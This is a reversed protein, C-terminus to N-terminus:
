LQEHSVLWGFLVLATSETSHVHRNYVLYITTGTFLFFDIIQISHESLPSCGIYLISPVIKAAMAPSVYVEPGICTQTLRQTHTHTIHTHTSAHHLPVPSQLYAHTQTHTHTHTHRINTKSEDYCEVCHYLSWPILFFLSLSITPTHSQTRTNHTHAGTHRRVKRHSRLLM